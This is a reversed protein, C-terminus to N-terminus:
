QPVKLSHKVLLGSLSLLHFLAPKLTYPMVQTEAPYSQFNNIIALTMASVSHKHGETNM